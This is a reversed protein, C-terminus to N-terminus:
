LVNGEHLVVGNKELVAQLEKVNLTSFDDTMANRLLVLRQAKERYGGQYGSISRQQPTFM